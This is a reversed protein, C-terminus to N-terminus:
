SAERTTPVRLTIASMMPAIEYRFGRGAKIVPDAATFAEVDARDKAKVVGLGWAGAPDAVPGFVVGGGEAIRARCHMAHQGMLEREETTIDAPFTTRPPILRCLFYSEAESLYGVLWGFVREWGEAHGSCSAANAGFGTHHLTLRTGGEIAELHYTFTTEPGDDWSPKWTQVLKRPPDVELYRGEVSFGSGDAGKGECRWAGGPRVDGSFSTTQYMDPAGWWKTIEDSSLARFVREPPVMVDVTALVIGANVDAIARAVARKGKSM